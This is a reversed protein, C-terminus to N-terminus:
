NSSRGELELISKSIQSLEKLVDDLKAISAKLRDPVDGIVERLKQKRSYLGIKQEELRSRFTNISEFVESISKKLLINSEDVAAIVASANSSVHPVAAKVLKKCAKVKRLVNSMSSKAESISLSISNLVEPHDKKSRL